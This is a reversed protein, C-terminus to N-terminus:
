RISCPSQQVAAGRDSFWAVNEHVLDLELRYHGPKGPAVVTIPVELRKGPLTWKGPFGREAGEVVPGGPEDPRWRYGLHVTPPWTHASRNTAVVELRRQEGRVMIPPVSASEWGVSHASTPLPMTGTTQLGRVVDAPLDTFICFAGVVFVRFRAQRERLFALFTLDRPPLLILAPQAARSLEDHYAKIRVMEEAWLPSVIVSERSEFDLRYASWYNAYAHRVGRESLAAVVEDLPATVERENFVFAHQRAMALSGLNGGFLVITLLAARLRPRRRWAESMAGLGLLSPVLVFYAVMYRPENAAFRASACTALFTGAAALGLLRAGRGGVGPRWFAPLLLALVALPVLVMAFPFPERPDSGYLPHAAGTLVPISSRVASGANALIGSLSARAVEPATLSAWEHRINWFWWPFSGVALGALALIAAVPGPRTPRRAVMWAVVVLSLPLTVLSVWIGVGIALGVVPYIWRLSAGGAREALLASGVMVAAHLMVAAYAGDSTMGKYLFFYPPLALYALAVLAEDRGFARSTLWWVFAVILWTLAVMTARFVGMGVGFVRFMGAVLHAELSGAYTSGYYFVPHGRGEAIHKAMLGVVAQDSSTPIRSTTLVFAQCALAALVLLSPLGWRKRTTGASSGESAHERTHRSPEPDPGEQPGSLAHTGPVPQSTDSAAFFGSRLMAWEEAASVVTAVAV